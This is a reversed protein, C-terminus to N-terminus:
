AAPVLSTPATTTSSTSVSAGNLPASNPLGRSVMEALGVNIAQGVLTPDAKEYLGKVFSKLGDLFDFQNVEKASRFAATIEPWTPSKDADEDYEGADMAEASSYGAFEWRAMRKSLAPVVMCLADYARERGLALLAGGLDDRDLLEQIDVALLGDVFSKGQNEMRGIRQEPVPLEYEGLKVVPVDPM